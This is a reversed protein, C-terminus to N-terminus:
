HLSSVTDHRSEESQSKSALVLRSRGTQLLLNNTHKADKVDDKNDFMRTFFDDLDKVCLTKLAASTVVVAARTWLVEGGVLLLRVNKKSMFTELSRAVANSTRVRDRGLVLHDPVADQMFHLPLSM